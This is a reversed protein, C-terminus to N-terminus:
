KNPIRVPIKLPTISVQSSVPVVMTAVTRNKKTDHVTSSIEGRLKVGGNVLGVTIGGNLTVTNRELWTKILDDLVSM